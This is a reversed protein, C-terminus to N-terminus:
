WYFTWGWRDEWPLFAWSIKLFSSESIILQLLKMQGACYKEPKMQALLFFSCINCSGHFIPQNFVHDTYQSTEFKGYIQPTCDGGRCDLCGAQKRDISINSTFPNPDINRPGQTFVPFGASITFSLLPNWEYFHISSTGVTRRPKPLGGFYENLLWQKSWSPNAAVSHGFWSFNARRGTVWALQM